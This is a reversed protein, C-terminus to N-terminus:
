FFVLLYVHLMNLHVQVFLINSDIADNDTTFGSSLYRNLLAAKDANSVLLNGSEDLLPAIGNQDM